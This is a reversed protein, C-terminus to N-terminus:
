QYWFVPWHTHGKVTSGKGSTAHISHLTAEDSWTGRCWRFSREYVSIFHMSNVFCFQIQSQTINEAFLKALVANRLVATVNHYLFVWIWLQTKVVACVCVCVCVCMWVCVGIICTCRFLLDCLRESKGRSRDVVIVYLRGTWLAPRDAQFYCGVLYRSLLRNISRHRCFCWM